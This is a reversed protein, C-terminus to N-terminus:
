NRKIQKITKKRKMTKNRKITKNRKKNKKKKRKSNIKGGNIKSKNFYGCVGNYCDNILNNRNINTFYNSNSNSNSNSNTNSNSNSNSYIIKNFPQKDIIYQPETLEKNRYHQATTEDIECDRCTPDYIYIHNFGMSKFLLYLDTLHIYKENYIQDVLYKTENSARSKWYDKAPLYMNINAMTRNTPGGLTFPIDEKFSSSVVTLGYEPCCIKNINREPLCRVSKSSCNNDKCLRCNEHPAPEFIFERELVPWTFTFGDKYQIGCNEYVAPLERGMEHFLDNQEKNNMNENDQRNYYHHLTNLVVIDIPKYQYKKCLKMIGLEGPKGVFSLLEVTKDNDFKVNLDEKGHGEILLTIAQDM